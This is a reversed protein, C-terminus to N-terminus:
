KGAILLSPQEAAEDWSIAIRPVGFPVQTVPSVVTGSFGGSNILWSTHDAGFRRM